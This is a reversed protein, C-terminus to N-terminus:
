RESTSSNASLLTALPDQCYCLSLYFKFFKTFCIYILNLFDLFNYPCVFRRWFYVDFIIRRRMVRSGNRTLIIQLTNFLINNVMPSRSIVTGRWIKQINVIISRFIEFIHVIISRIFHFYIKKNYDFYESILSFYTTLEKTGIIRKEMMTPGQVLLTLQLIKSDQKNAKLYM